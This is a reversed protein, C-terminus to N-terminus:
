FDGFWARTYISIYRRKVPAVPYYGRSMGTNDEYPLYSGASINFRFRKGPRFEMGVQYFSQNSDHLYLSSFFRLDSATNMSGRTSFFFRNEGGPDLVKVAASVRASSWDSLMFLSVSESEPHNIQLGPVIEFGGKFRLRMRGEVRQYERGTDSRYADEMRLTLMQDYKGSKWWADMYTAIIPSDLRSLYSDFEEGVMRYGPIIGAKGLWERSFDIGHIEASFTNRSSFIGSFGDSTIKDPTLGLLRVEKLNNWDGRLTRALEALIELKSFSLGLDMGLVAMNGEPSGNVSSLTVGSRVLNGLSTRGRIISLYEGTSSFMTMGYNDEIKGADHMRALTWSLYWERGANAMTLKIGESRNELLPSDDSIIKILRHGTHYVRERMFLLGSIRGGWIEMGIHGQRLHFSDRGDEPEGNYIFGSGGNVFCEVPNWPHFLGMASFRDSGSINRYNWPFGESDRYMRIRNVYYVSFESTASTDAPTLGDMRNSGAGIGPSVANFCFAWLMVLLPVTVSRTSATASGIM